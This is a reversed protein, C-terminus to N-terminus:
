WYNSYNKQYLMINNNTINNIRKMSTSHSSEINNNKNENGKKSYHSM